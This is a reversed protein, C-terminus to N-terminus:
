GYNIRVLRKSVNILLIPVLEHLVDVTITNINIDVEKLMSVQSIFSDVLVNIISMSAVDVFNKPLEYVETVSKINM